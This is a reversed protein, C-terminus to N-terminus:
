VAWSPLYRAETERVRSVRQMGPLTLTAAVVRVKGDHVARHHADCLPVL